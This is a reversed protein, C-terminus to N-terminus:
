IQGRSSVILGVLILVLGLQAIQEAFWTTGILAGIASAGIATVGLQLM